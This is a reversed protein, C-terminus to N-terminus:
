TRSWRRELRRGLVTVTTAALLGAFFMGSLSTVATLALRAGHRWLVVGDTLGKARALVIHQRTLV